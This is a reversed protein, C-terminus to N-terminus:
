RRGCPADRVDPDSRRKPPAYKTLRSTHHAGQTSVRMRTSRSRSRGCSERRYGHSSRWLSGPMPLPLPDPMESTRSRSEIPTRPDSPLAHHTRCRPARHPERNRSRRICGSRGADSRPGLREVRALKMRTGASKNPLRAVVSCQGCPRGHGDRAPGAQRARWQGSAGGARRTRPWVNM